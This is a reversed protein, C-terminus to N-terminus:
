PDCLMSSLVNPMTAASATPRPHTAAYRRRYLCLTADRHSRSHCPHANKTIAAVRACHAACLDKVCGMGARGSCGQVDCPRYWDVVAHMPHACKGRTAGLTRQRRRCHAPCMGHTCQVLSRQTNCGDEACAGGDATTETDYEVRSRKHPRAADITDWFIVNDGSPLRKNCEDVAKVEDQEDDVLIVTKDMHARVSDACDITHQSPLPERDKESGQGNMEHQDRNDTIRASDDGCEYALTDLAPADDAPPWEVGMFQALGQLTWGCADRGDAAETASESATPEDRLSWMHPDIGAMCETQRAVTRNDSAFSAM